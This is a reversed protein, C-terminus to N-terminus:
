VRIIWFRSPLAADRAAVVTGALRLLAGTVCNRKAERSSVARCRDGDMGSARTDFAGPRSCGRRRQRVDRLALRGDRTRSSVCPDIRPSGDPALLLISKLNREASTRGSRDAFGSLARAGGLNM